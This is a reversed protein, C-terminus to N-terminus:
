RLVDAVEPIEVVRDDLDGRLTAVVHLDPHAKLQDFLQQFFARREEETCGQTFAEELRDIAM